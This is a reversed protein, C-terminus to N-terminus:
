FAFIYFFSYNIFFVVNKLAVKNLLCVSKMAVKYTLVVYIMAVKALDNLVTYWGLLTSM